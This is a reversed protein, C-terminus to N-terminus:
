QPNYLITTKRKMGLSHGYESFEKSEYRTENESRLLDECHEILSELLSVFENFRIPVESNNRIM